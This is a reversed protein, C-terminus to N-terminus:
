QKDRKPRFLHLFFSAVIQFVLVYGIFVQNGVFMVLPISVSVGACQSVNFLSFGQKGWNEESVVALNLSYSCCDVFGLLFAAAGLIYVNKLYLSALLLLM